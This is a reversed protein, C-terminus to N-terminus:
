RVNSPMPPDTRQKYDTRLANTIEKINSVNSKLEVIDNSIKGIALEVNQNTQKFKPWEGEISTVHSSINAFSESLKDLRMQHDHLERELSSTKQSLTDNITILQDSVNKIGNTCQNTVNQMWASTENQMNGNLNSQTSNTIGNVIMQIADLQQKDTKQATQITTYGEKLSKADTELSQIKAGFSAITDKLDVSQDNATKDESKRINEKM